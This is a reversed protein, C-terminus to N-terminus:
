KGLVDKNFRDVENSSGIALATRQDVTNIKVDLVSGGTVGDSTKGGAQEVLLGLPAAEFALRLKAPAKDCTPNTFIGQQKTFQQYIDPVMGGTYRLTTKKELHGQFYKMYGPIEQTARLNAPSFIKTDAGITIKSRSCVWEPLSGDPNRAGEATAGRTFEYVGDDLGILATTRPGYMCCLSTVQDRGTAGLFGTKQQDWVGIITGVAFNSDVISSGDLPDWCLAFKNKEHFMRVDPDEESAGTSIVKSDACMKWLIEDAIVDVTLQLLSLLSPLFSLFLLSCM